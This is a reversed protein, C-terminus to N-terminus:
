FSRAGIAEADIRMKGDEGRWVEYPYYASASVAFAFAAGIGPRTRLSYYYDLYQQTRSQSDLLPSTSSFETIMVLKDPWRDRYYMYKGGGNESAIGHRDEWHCHCGIWDANGVSSGASHMFESDDARMGSTSPGPALGPWGLKVEPNKAKLLDCVQVFWEGFEYGSRWSTGMGEPTLNPENHVEFYRVGLEKFRMLDPEVWRAFEVASVKRGRFDASLRVLVFMGPNIERARTVDEALASSTLKLAEIRAQEVIEWDAEQMPGDVRGHLGVLARGHVWSDDSPVPTQELPILFPTPDIIDNPYTTHGAATAGKKKLTLHLQHGASNGTADALGILDGAKVRQGSHVLARNLHGYITRYGDVHAIRVHIGYPHSGTGDHVRYVEGDACAYINANRPAYIDIGDHGPLGWRRYVRPNLGFGQTITPYDTPWRLSFDSSVGEVVASASDTPQDDAVTATSGFREDDAIRQSMAASAEEPTDVEIVDLMAQPAREGLWQVIDDVQPYGNAANLVTIVQGPQQTEVANQPDPTVGVQFHVAYDRVAEVWAWYNDQPLLIIHYTTEESM